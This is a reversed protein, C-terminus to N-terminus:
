KKLQTQKNDIPEFSHGVHHQFLRRCVLHVYVQQSWSRIELISSLLIEPTGHIFRSLCLSTLVHFRRHVLYLADSRFILSWVNRNRKNEDTLHYTRITGSNRSRIFTKPVDFTWRSYVFCVDIYSSKVCRWPWYKDARSTGSTSFANM